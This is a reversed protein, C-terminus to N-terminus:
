PEVFFLRTGDKISTHKLRKLQLSGKTMMVNKGGQCMRWQFLIAGDICIRSRRYMQCREVLFECQRM